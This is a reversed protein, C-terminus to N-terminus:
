PCYWCGGGMCYWCPGGGSWPRPRPLRPPLLLQRMAQKAVSHQQQTTSSDQSHQYTIRKGTTMRAFPADYVPISIHHKRAELAALAEALRAVRCAAGCCFGMSKIYHRSQQRAGSSPDCAHPLLGDRSVFNGKVPLPFLIEFKLHVM